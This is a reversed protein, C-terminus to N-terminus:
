ARTAEIGWPGIVALFWGEVSPRTAMRMLGIAEERSSGRAILTPVYPAHAPIEVVAFIQGWTPVFVNRYWGSIEAALSM